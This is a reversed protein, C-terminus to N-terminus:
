DVRAAGTEGPCETPQYAARNRSRDTKRSQSAPLQFVSARQPPKAPARKAAPKAAAKPAPDGNAAAAKPKAAARTRTTAPKDAAKAAPKRARTAKAPESGPDSPTSTTM